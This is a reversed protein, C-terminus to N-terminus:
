RGARPWIPPSRRHSSRAAKASVPTPGPGQGGRRMRDGGRRSARFGYRRVPQNSTRSIRLLRARAPRRRRRQQRFAREPTRKSLGGGKLAPQRPRARGVRREAGVAPHRQGRAGLEAFRGNPYDREHTHVDIGAARLRAVVGDLDDVRFNIKWTKDPSGFADSFAALVTEGRDQFRGPDDCRHSEIMVVGLHEAYWRNLTEPDEARFFFGGIGTVRAM